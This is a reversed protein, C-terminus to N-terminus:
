AAEEEARITTYLAQYDLIDVAGDGNVDAAARYAEEDGGLAGEMVGTSLYTFLNQMDVGAMAPEVTIKLVAAPSNVKTGAGDAGDQYLSHAFRILFGEGDSVKLPEENWAAYRIATGNMTREAPVTRTLGNEYTITIEM